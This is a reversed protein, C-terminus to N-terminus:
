VGVFEGSKVMWWGVLGQAGGMSFLLALRPYLNLRTMAARTRPHALLGAFPLAFALGISRGWMRHFWEMFYIRKFEDMTMNRNLKAYEPFLKYKEFEEAWRGPTDPLRSGQPRWETMSLGSRTLRTLGGLTVMGFVSGAVGTIWAGVLKTAGSDVAAATTAARQAAEPAAGGVFAGDIALSSKGKVKARAM